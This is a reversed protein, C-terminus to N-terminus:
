LSTITDRVSVVVTCMLLQVCTCVINYSLTLLAEPILIQVLCWKRVGYGGRKRSRSNEDQGSCLCNEEQVQVCTCRCQRCMKHEHVYVHQVCFCHTKLEPFLLSVYLDEEFSCVTLLRRSMTINVSHLDLLNSTLRLLYM